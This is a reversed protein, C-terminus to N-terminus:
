AMQDTATAGTLIIGILSPGFVDAASESCCMLRRDQTFSPSESSLSLRRDLEVLVHYDPPAFDNTAAQLTEEDAEERVDVQCKPKLFSAIM